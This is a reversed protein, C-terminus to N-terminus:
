SSDPGFLDRSLPHPNRFAASNWGGNPRRKPKAFVVPSGSMGESSATDVYILPLGEVDIDPETAISGRKWIPLQNPGIGRPYGLIFIDGAISPRLPSNELANIPFVWGRLSEPLELCVVDVRRGLSPHELWAPRGDTGYLGRGVKARANLNGNPFATFLVHDPEVGTPSLHEGTVPNIGTVNHWNTVLFVRGDSAIWFFATGNSIARQQFLMELISSSSSYRDIFVDRSESASPPDSVSGM